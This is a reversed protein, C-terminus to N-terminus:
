MVQRNRTASRSTPLAFREGEPLELQPPLSQQM